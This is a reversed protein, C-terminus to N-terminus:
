DTTPLAVAPAPRIQLAVLWSVLMVLGAGLFAPEPGIRDFIQGFVLPGTFRGLASLAQAAGLMAGQEAPGALMSVMGTLAPAALSNASALLVVWPYIAAGQRVFPMASIAVAMGLTGLMILLRDGTIRQIRGFLGGQVVAAIVGVITFFVGLNGADWGFARKAFLPLTVTYGSFALPVIGFILFVPRFAPDSLGRMLHAPDVIRRRGRHEVQLSEDLLFYASVLNVLCLAVAVLGVAKPGGYHGAIGGVAPGVIFGLGFAAGILGMGRSREAPSTVDAIAAQAVSINGGAFGAIARAAFLWAYSPAFAFLAYGVAAILITTLLLPRRGIRDSLGGLLVTAIFQMLSFVGVLAGFGIGSAGFRQAYFPLIPLILGFGALDIFVTLFIVALRSRSGSM